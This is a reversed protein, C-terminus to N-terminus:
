LTELFRILAALEEASLHSTGGHTDPQGFRENFGIEGMNLLPHGPNAVAERLSRAGGHHLFRSRDWLGRLSTVGVRLGGDNQRAEPFTGLFAPNVRDVDQGTDPQLIPSIVYPFTLPGAAESYVTSRATAGVPLPHCTACGAESSGFIAAGMAVEVTPAVANPNPLMRPQNLLFAGLAKTIGDFGLPIPRRVLGGDDGVREVYLADGFSEARGLLDQAAGRFHEDRTLADAGYGREACEPPPDTLCSLVHNCGELDGDALCRERSPYRSWIRTDAQECCFNEKRDFENIVPFFNEEDMAAEVFWPRSVYGGRYSMINRVGWTPTELLPMSVRKGIPTGDRHCHVCTQDGDVTFAATATNFAEGLEADTSPFPGDTVDGVIERAVAEGGAQTLDFRAVSESLREVVVLARGDDIAVADMAGFHTHFLGAAATERPSLAGSGEDIDFTQVENSGGFVVALADRGDARRVAIAREPMAGAVIWTDRPPLFAVRAPPWVDVPRLALGAEPRDPDVDRYDKCCISDSTYRHLRHLDSPDLVDIENQVDQFGINATQDGPQGDGDGDFGEDPPHNTGSGIHLVVVFGGVVAVDIVPSNPEYEAIREGSEADIMVLSMATESGVLVRTGDATVVVRDPNVPMPIGVPGGYSAGSDMPRVSLAGGHDDLEWRLLSDKWRNTLYAHKGDAAIAVDETYFPVDIEGEVRGREVDVISAYRAFRNTVILHRGNPHVAIAYPMPGVAIRRITELSVADVVAIQRGPASENGELAVYLRQGDPSAAIARPRDRHPQPSWNPDDPGIPNAEPALERPVARPPAEEVCAQWSLASLLLVTSRWPIAARAGCGLPISRGNATLARTGVAAQSSVTRSM